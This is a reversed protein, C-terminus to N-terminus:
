FISGEGGWGLISVIFKPSYIMEFAFLELRGDTRAILDIVFILCSQQQNNKALANNVDSSLNLPIFVGLLPLLLVEETFAIQEM